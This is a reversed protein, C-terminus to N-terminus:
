AGRLFNAIFSTADAFAPAADEQIECIRDRAQSFVGDAFAIPVKKVDVFLDGAFIGVLARHANIRRHM